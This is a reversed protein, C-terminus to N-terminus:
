IATGREFSERIDGTYRDYFRALKQNFQKNKDNIYTIDGDNTDAGLRDRRRKLRADEAKQMDKVLRDVNERKPRNEVFEVTDSTSYFTGDKDVAVLEGDEMEVIDLGGSQAAKEILAAKSAEYEERNRIGGKLEMNELNKIQREYMKAAESSYDQFAVNDRQRAKKEMREDWRESEEVTYDWARKREFAGLGGEEETDAKLLNHSAVAAKRSLNALLSPDVSSRSAEARAEALNSKQSASARSQLAKFRAMRDTQSTSPPAAIAPPSSKSPDRIRDRTGNKPIIESDQQEEQETAKASAVAPIESIEEVMNKSELTAPM